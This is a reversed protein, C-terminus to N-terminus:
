DISAFRLWAHCSGRSAGPTFNSLDDLTIRADWMGIKVRGDDYHHLIMANPWEYKDFDGRGRTIRPTGNHIETM